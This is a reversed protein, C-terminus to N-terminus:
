DLAPARLAGGDRSRRLPVLPASPAADAGGARAVRLKQTVGGLAEGAGRRHAEHIDYAFRDLAETDLPDGNLAVSLYPLNMDEAVQGYQAEAVKCPMCEHPGVIVVGQILGERFEHVPGGLTLAAEGLLARDIYGDAGKLTDAITTRPGPGLAPESAQHLSGLIGRQVVGTLAINLPDDDRRLREELVREEALHTTYELWEVFPAFRVRLGREELKDIIFDNAFPDLRVYIEGVLAVTPVRRSPDKVRALERAARAIIDRTGWLGGFLQGIAGAASRPKARGMTDILEAVHREFIEEAAGKRLEVPRVEHLMAELADFAAFATFLRVSFDPSAERFYDGDDPSVVKVRDGNGTQELIIKHLDHYVGFRCPGSATPMFLAFREEPSSAEVRNLMTGVTLIMPVCEKGSTHRRGTRVDERTPMPLAEARYGEARMAAAGVDAERGMRPILLVDGKRRSEGLSQGHRGLAAFDTIPAAASAGSRLDTDVCFLFAEMRTRTGADGSHGDTEVVSFPKGRMMYAYFHLTFSDPGCAYNSCYVSYLGPTKRVFDAARLNRQTYAWYQDAYVPTEEPVPLCDIPIALAGLSRLISPVNSNLVDNHITYPRGLVAIPTVGAGACFTLAEDGIRRCAADFSEQAEIAELLAAEFRTLASAGLGASLEHLCERLARGRLGGQDFRLVPRLVRGKEPLLSGVLDPSAQVIPCLVAHEEDGVRPLDRLMPVFYHDAREEALEFFVGHYLQAPACFPVRAGEIGKHLAKAGAGRAVRCRYGLRRFFIVFFPLLSKLAFEDTLAIVPETEEGREAELLADLLEERQRFPDPSLDPLKKRGAGKDYLSCNGGWIFRQVVGDVVTKLRDIRCHNGSGGCGKTSNCVFTEKAMVTAGLFVRPDVIAQDGHAALEERALLAIGFAGITGPNPPVVVDRGTQRTVAAALADSSFPMGQCFIRQGVSRSGKVRNLYNQIISDYLGAIIADRGEGLAIAEDIVEAMFVSCHQGLSVGHDANLALQGLKVVDDGVGEFKAGQEAIFSGTGASCAENMAADIVRGGELRIYKADQGGIEFITDVEPDVFVAGRAHAAIENMIFVRGRGYCTTLLSGVVERGSGTVGVGVVVGRDGPGDEGVWREILRQAAHVPAGETDLYTEWVPEGRAADVAVMKSGTSGIDFGLFVRRPEEFSRSFDSRPRRQVRKQAERLSPVRELREGDPASFLHDLDPIPRPHEAAHLAAGIAELMADEPRPDVLRLGRASLWAGITRRVRASRSVGGTLVVDRPAVRPRVLTLVNECVADYLGALIRARDEGKNALHTMDTKLIVPCRGSLPAAHEVHDCLESAEEVDLGFRHVLQALFNGTGQSCRSNQAFWEEGDVRLELVSFGHAGVSIVTAAGLEPHIARVGRRLAAKTPVSEAAVLRQLRGTVALGSARQHEVQTLMSRLTEEPREHHESALADVITLAGQHEVLSVVKITEAGMDIGVCRMSMFPVYRM